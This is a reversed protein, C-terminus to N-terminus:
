EPLWEVNGAFRVPCSAQDRVLTPEYRVNFLIIACNASVLGGSTCVRVAEELWQSSFSFGDLLARVDIPKEHADAEPATRESFEIGFDKEFQEWIYSDLDGFDTIEGLWFSLVNPELLNSTKM